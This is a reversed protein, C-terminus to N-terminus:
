NMRWKLVYQCNQLGIIGTPSVLVLVLTSGTHTYFSLKLKHTKYIIKGAVDYLRQTILTATNM